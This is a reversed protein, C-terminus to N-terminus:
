VALHNVFALLEEVQKPAFWRDVADAGFNTLPAQYLDALALHRKRLFVSQVALMFRIQDANFQHLTIFHQFQGAVVQEYGPIADMDLVVRLLDLFSEIRVGYVKRLNEQTAELNGGGLDQQLVRELAILQAEDVVEGRAIAALTPHHEVIQLIREEVRRRYESVYVQEGSNTLLIYGSLDIMDALDITLFSSQRRKNKMHIALKDRVENLETPRATSLKEPTCQSLASQVSADKIVFEPLLAIDELISRLHNTPDKHLRLSLKLREIKHTFTEAAVDVDAALRLLPGVKLRLFDIKSPVLYSWFADTWCDEIEPLVRKVTFSKTPIRLIMAKLDAIIQQCDPDSQEALYTELIKLRTNFLATLVPIEQAIAEEASKNFQNDWFDIVLFEKKVGDPLLHLLAPRCAAQSRTGRGLMQELKIRSHVPKMFVLNVVEPIDVGTDLMDVSVAIRPLDQNKFKDMLQGRYESKYTIVRCVDPWQPYMEDFVTQLRLAHEQTIAFIITKGPLQGSRDKICVEMLEEWQKRLTDRNSVDKELQTGEFDLEDPDLGQQILSNRQEESLELGHIGFNQFKTRAAYLTFDVLYDEGIAQAYTYLYTPAGEACDFIRFTDREIFQAPTATLGIMRADFYQIVDNYKNFISRHVEDFIILDFFGPTFQEFCNSLTQLTAAYLRNSKQIDTSYIRTCPEMPLFKEFGDTKAQKVLEDRDAVFLIHRAQNARLFVDILSMTTRTKGTGTAMVILAKRKGSHFTESVRRIAEHQYPRDTITNNLSIGALPKQNQKLWLLRELDEPSFFGYILRKAAVGSDLFYIDTGNALFIFPKYGQHKAIEAAYHEAQQQALQPNHATRKAEVVAIIEGNARYLSYDTVGNWPEANQGDVPIELGVRSKDKLHWGAAELQPDIM